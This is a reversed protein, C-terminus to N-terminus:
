AKELGTYLDSGSEIHYLMLLVDQTTACVCCVVLRRTPLATLRLLTCPFRPLVCYRVAVRSDAVSPCSLLLM